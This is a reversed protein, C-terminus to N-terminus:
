WKVRKLGNLYVWILGLGYLGFSDLRNAGRLMTRRLKWPVSSRLYSSKCPRAHTRSFLIHEGVRHNIQGLYIEGPRTVEIPRAHRMSCACVYLATSCHLRGHMCTHCWWTSPDSICMSQANHDEGTSARSFIFEMKDKKSARRTRQRSRAWPSYIYGLTKSGLYAM